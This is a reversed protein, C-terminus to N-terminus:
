SFKDVSLLDTCAELLQRISRGTVPHILEPAIESLPTLVFRRQSILPHPIVLDDREIVQNNYFLIDIDIIRARYIGNEKGRGLSREIEQITSLVREPSLSSMVKLCQNLFKDPHIFGWSETEYLSSSRTITGIKQSILDRAQGIIAQRNGRNSGLGIFVTNM